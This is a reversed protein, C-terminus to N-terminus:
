CGALAERYHQRTAQWDSLPPTNRVFATPAREYLGSRDGFGPFDDTIPGAEALETDLCKIFDWFEAELRAELTSKAVYNRALYRLDDGRPTSDTLFRLYIMEDFQLERDAAPIAEALELAQRLSDCQTAALVERFRPDPDWPLSDPIWSVDPHAMGPPPDVRRASWHYLRARDNDNRIRVWPSREDSWDPKDSHIGEPRDWGKFAGQRQAPLLGEAGTAEILHEFFRVGEHGVAASIFVDGSPAIQKALHDAYTAMAAAKERKTSGTALFHVRLTLEDPIDPYILAASESAKSPRLKTPPETGYNALQREFLTSLEFYFRRAQSGEARKGALTRYRKASCDLDNRYFERFTNAKITTEYLDLTKKYTKIAELGDQWKPAKPIM